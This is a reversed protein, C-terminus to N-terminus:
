PLIAQGVTAFVLFGARSAAHPTKIQHVRFRASLRDIFFLAQEASLTQAVYCYLYSDM